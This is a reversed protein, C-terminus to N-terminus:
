YISLTENKPYTIEFELKYHSTEKSKLKERWTIFGTSIDLEGGDKDILEVKIDDDQSIPIQDMVIINLSMPKGNRVSIDFAMSKKNNTGIVRDISKDTVQTRKVDISKDRGLSLSLTDSLSLPDLYTKGVYTNNFYINANGPLLNVNEWDTIRAILFASQEIKPVILYNYDAPLTQSQLSVLHGKGDSPINYSLEIAFEVNAITQSATTYASSNTADKEKSLSGAIQSMARNAEDEAVGPASDLKDDYDRGYYYQYYGVYWTTLQPLTNGLTPNGTSCTLKVNKWDIGTNQWINAKYNLQVPQSIDSARIDYTAYWGANYTLYNIEVKASTALEADVSVIIQPVPGKNENQANQQAWYNQLDYLRQQIRAKESIISLEKRELKLLEAYIENLKKDYYEITQQLLLLSDSGAATLLLKNNLMMQKQLNLVDRKNAIDKLIFDIEVVSDQTNKIKKQIETPLQQNVVPEPYYLRYQVDIITFEGKGGAQISNQDISMPMGEMIIETHGASLTVSKTHFLQAGNLFVIAKDPQSTVTLTDGAFAAISCLIAFFNLILKM